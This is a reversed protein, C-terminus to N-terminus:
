RYKNRIKVSLFEELPEKGLSLHSLFIIKPAFKECGFIAFDRRDMWCVAGLFRQTDIIRLSTNTLLPVLFTCQQLSRPRGRVKVVGSIDPIHVRWTSLKTCYGVFIEAGPCETYM